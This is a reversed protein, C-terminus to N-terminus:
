MEMEWQLWDLRSDLQKVQEKSSVLGIGRVKEKGMRWALERCNSHGKSIGLGLKWGWPMEWVLDQEMEIGKQKTTDMWLFRVVLSLEWTKLRVRTIQWERQLLTGMQKATSIVLEM